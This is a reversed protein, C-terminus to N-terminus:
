SAAKSASGSAERADTLVHWRSVVEVFRDPVEIMPAHGVGPFDHREWDPRRAALGNMVWSSVLLDRDGWLLLTPTTVADIADVITRGEIHMAVLSSAADSLAARRWAEAKGVEFNELLAQRMAPRVGDPQGFIAAFSEDVMEDPTKQRYGADILLRGVGPVAAPLVRQLVKGPIRIMDRRPAPLAPNVLVLRSLRDPHRAAVLTAVLGGMSNGFLVAEGWGLSDLLAPVFGASARIRASGGEPVPTRGFGPFDVAVVPGGHEALPGMVELWNRASGGLGHLLLQPTGDLLGDHRLVSVPRGLVHVTEERIGRWAPDRAGWDTQEDM